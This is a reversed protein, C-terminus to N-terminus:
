NTITENIKRALEILKEKLEELSGKNKIVYQAQDMCDQMSEENDEKGHLEIKETEVFEEFSVKDKGRKLNNEFRDMIQAEILIGVFNKGYTKKFLELEAPHRISEVVAIPKNKSNIEKIARQALVDNGFEKRLANGKVIAKKRSYAGELEEIIYKSLGIPKTDFEDAIIKAATSKGAGNLGLIGIVKM